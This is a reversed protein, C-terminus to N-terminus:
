VCLPDGEAAGGSSGLLGLNELYHRLLTLSPICEAQRLFENGLAAKYLRLWNAAPVRSLFAPLAQFNDTSFLLRLTRLIPKYDEAGLLKALTDDLQHSIEVMNLREEVTADALAVRPDIAVPYIAQFSRAGSLLSERLVKDATSGTVLVDDGFIVHVGSWRYFNEAPIVHDQVLNVQEREETSLSAYNECPPAIRPLKVNILTPLGMHALKVNIEEVVIDYLVNATSPVNRWGTTMLVVNDNLERAGAFLRAWHSAPDDLQRELYNIVLGALFRIDKQSGYKARSYIATLASASAGSGMDRFGNTGDHTLCNLAHGGLVAVYSDMDILDQALLGGAFARLGGNVDEAQPRAVAERFRALQEDVPAAALLKWDNSRSNV